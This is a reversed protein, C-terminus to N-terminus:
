RNELNKFLSFKHFFTVLHSEQSFQNIKKLNKWFKGLCVLPNKVIKMPSGKESLLNWSTAGKESIM